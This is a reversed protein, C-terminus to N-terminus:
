NCPELLENLGQISSTDDYELAGLCLSSMLTQFNNFTGGHYSTTKTTVIIPTVRPTVVTEQIASWNDYYWTCNSSRACFDSGGNADSHLTHVHNRELQPAAYHAYMTEEWDRSQTTHTCPDKGIAASHPTHVHNRGLRPATYHTYM